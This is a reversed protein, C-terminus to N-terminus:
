NYIIKTSRHPFNFDLRRHTVRDIKAWNIGIPKRFLVIRVLVILKKSCDTYLWWYYNTQDPKDEKKLKKKIKIIQKALM